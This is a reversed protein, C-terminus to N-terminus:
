KRKFIDKSIELIKRYETVNYNYFFSPVLSTGSINSATVLAMFRSADELACIFHLGLFRLMKAAFDYKTLGKMAGFDSLSKVLNDINYFDYKSLQEEIERYDFSSIAAAAKYLDKGELGFFSQYIYTSLLFKVKSLESQFSGLLGYQKGFIRIFVTTLFNIIPEAHNLKMDYKRTVLRRFCEGYALASYIEKSSMKTITDTNYFTMNLVISGTPENYTLALPYKDSNIIHINKQATEFSSILSYIVDSTFHNTSGQIMMVSRILNRLNLEDSERDIDNKSVSIINDINKLFSFQKKVIIM